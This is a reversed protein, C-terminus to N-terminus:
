ENTKGGAIEALAARAAEQASQMEAVTKQLRALEVAQSTQRWLDALDVQADLQEAPRINTVAYGEAQMQQAIYGAPRMGLRSLADVRGGDLIVTETQEARPKPQRTDVFSVAYAYLRITKTLKMQRKGGNRTYQLRYHTCNKVAQGDQINSRGPRSETKDVATTGETPPDRCDCREGPDLNAGCQPCTWYMM